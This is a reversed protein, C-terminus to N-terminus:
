IVPDDGSRLFHQVKAPNNCPFCCWKKSHSTSNYSFQDFYTAAQLEKFILQQGKNSPFASTVLATFSKSKTFNKPLLNWCSKLKQVSEVSSSLATPSRAQLHLFMLHLWTVPQKTRFTFPTVKFLCYEGMAQCYFQIKLYNRHGVDEVVCQRPAPCKKSWEDVY